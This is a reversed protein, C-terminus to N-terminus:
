EDVTAGISANCSVVDADDANIGMAGNVDFAYVVVPDGIDTNYSSACENFGVSTGDDQDRILIGMGSLTFPDM